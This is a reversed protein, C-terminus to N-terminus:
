CIRLPVFEKTQELLSFRKEWFNLFIPLRSEESTPGTVLADEHSNAPHVRRAWHPGNDMPNQHLIM